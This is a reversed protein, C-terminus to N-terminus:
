FIIKSRIQMSHSLAAAMTNCKSKGIIEEFQDIIKFANKKKVSLTSFCNAILMTSSIFYVGDIYEQFSNAEICLYATFFILQIALIGLFILVIGNFPRRNRDFGIAKSYRQMTQFLKM